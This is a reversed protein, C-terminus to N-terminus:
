CVYCVINPVPIYATVLIVQWVSSCCQHRHIDTMSIFSIRVCKQYPKRVILKPLRVSNAAM